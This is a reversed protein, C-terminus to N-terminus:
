ATIRAMTEDADHTQKRDDIRLAFSLSRTLEDGV